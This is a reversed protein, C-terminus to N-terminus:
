TTKGWIGIFEHSLVVWAGFNLFFNIILFFVYGDVNGIFSEAYKGAAM